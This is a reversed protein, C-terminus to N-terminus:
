TYEMYNSRTTGGRECKQHVGQFATVCDRFSFHHVTETASQTVMKAQFNYKQGTGNGAANHCAVRSEGIKYNNDLYECTDFIALIFDNKDKIFDQKENPQYCAASTTTALPALLLLLSLSHQPIMKRQSSLPIFARASPVNPVM